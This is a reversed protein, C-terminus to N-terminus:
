QRGGAPEDRYAQCAGLFAAFLSQGDAVEPHWQVGFAWGSGTCQVAEVTGDTAWGIALLGTGLRGIAQHHYTAVVTQAGLVDALGSEPDISVLHQGHKGPTPCHEDTGVVDPLHQILDGGLAVNLVQLGRCIALLPLKRDLAASVLALEWGDRDVRPAGTHPDAVARYRGPDVDAGGAIVLGHLGDLVADVSGGPSPPLLMAVGGAATVSRAYSAPLLDAPEDWVGWRAPERYTTLGIRPPHDSNDNRSM